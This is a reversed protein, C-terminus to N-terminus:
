VLGGTEELEFMVNMNQVAQGAAGKVLNDISSTIILMNGAFTLGICCLNTYIVHALSALNGEPLVRVFPEKRYAQSYLARVRAETWGDALPVYITSLIGRRTPLLHPSFVLEPADVSWWGIAQEMEPVHRHVRGIKYPSFNDAVEVFQTNQKLGRGAGSVGSKSDAIITGSVAIAGAALVPQLPLLMSTPYCGPNAVLRASQLEPRFLETLGYVAEDLLHPAPHDVGYWRTYTGASRLRFDASLDVVRAGYELCKVVMPAAGAHPLCIFSIDVTSLPAHGSALLSLEPAAPFVDSLKQGAYTESTAFEIEVDPHRRLIKVLEHGVYGTAGFVGAKIM